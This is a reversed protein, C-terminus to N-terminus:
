RFNDTFDGSNYNLGFSIFETLIFDRQSNFHFGPSHQDMYEYWYSLIKAEQMASTSILM